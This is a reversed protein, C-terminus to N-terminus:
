AQSDQQLLFAVVDGTGGVTSFGQIQQPVGFRRANDQEIQVHGHHVAPLEALLLAAVRVQGRDGDDDERGLVVEGFDGAGEPGAAVAGFRNLKVPEEVGNAADRSSSPWEGCYRLRPKTRARWAAILGPGGRTPM